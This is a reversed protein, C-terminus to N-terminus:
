AFVPAFSGPLRSAWAVNAQAAGPAARSRDSSRFLTRAGTMGQVWANLSQAPLDGPERTLAQHVGERFHGELPQHICFADGM